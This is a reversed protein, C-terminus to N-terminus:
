KRKTNKWGTELLGRTERTPKIRAREGGHLVRWPTIGRAQARLGRPVRKVELVSRLSEKGDRVYRIM